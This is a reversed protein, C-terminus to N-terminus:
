SAPLEDMFRTVESPRELVYVAMEAQRAEAWARRQARKRHFTKVAYLLISQSSLLMRFSERASGPGYVPRGSWSRDLSRAVLRPLTVWLPLDLFVLADARAVVQERVASYNGDCVWGEPHADLWARVKRALEENDVSDWGSAHRVADLQLVPLDLREGLVRALTTKGSGSAGWISWRRPVETM